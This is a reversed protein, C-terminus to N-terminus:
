NLYLSEDINENKLSIVLPENVKDRIIIDFLNEKKIDKSNAIKLLDDFLQKKYYDSELLEDMSNGYIKESVKLKLCAKAKINNNEDLYRM